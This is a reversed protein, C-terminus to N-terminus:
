SETNKHENPEPTRASPGADQFQATQHLDLYLRNGPFTLGQQHRLVYKKQLFWTRQVEPVHCVSSFSIEKLGLQM